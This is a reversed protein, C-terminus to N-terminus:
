PPAIWRAPDTFARRALDLSESALDRSERARELAEQRRDVETATSRIDAEARLAAERASSGLELQDAERQHRDGYRKGGDYFPIVMTVQAQWGFEPFNVTPPNQYWAQGQANLTPLYDLWGDRVRREAVHARKRLAVLDPRDRVTDLAEAVSPLSQAEVAGVADAPGDLFTVVGLNEQATRLASRRVALTAENGRLEREARVVELRSGVGGQQRETVFRLQKESTEVARQSIELASKELEVALFARAVDIVVLRREDDSSSRVAELSEESRSTELWRAPVVLPVFLQASANFSNAALTINGGVTRDDDRRTYSLVGNLTPLWTSRSQQVQAEARLIAARARAMRPTQATAREIAQSFTLPTTPASSGLEKEATPAPSAAPEQAYTPSTVSLWALAGVVLKSPRM